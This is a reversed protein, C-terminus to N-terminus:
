VSLAFEISATGKKAGFALGTALAWAIIRVIMPARCLVFAPNPIKTLV